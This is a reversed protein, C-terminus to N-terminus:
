PASPTPPELFEGTWCLSAAHPYDFVIVEQEKRALKLAAARSKPIRATLLMPVETHYRASFPFKMATERSLSWSFGRVNHPGCGRYIV